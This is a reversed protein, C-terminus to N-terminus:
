RGMICYKPVLNLASAEEKSIIIEEGDMCVILPDQGEEYVEFNDEDSFIKAKSYRAQDAQRLEEISPRDIGYKKSLFNVKNVYKEKLRKRLIKCNNKVDKRLGRCPRSNRGLTEEIRHQFHDRLKRTRGEWNNNDRVKEKMM